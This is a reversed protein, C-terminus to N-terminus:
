YCRLGDTVYEANNRIGKVRTIGRAVNAYHAVGKKTNWADIVHNRNFYFLYGNREDPLKQAQAWTMRRGKYETIRTGRAIDIKTFLGKGAGPVRSRKIVLKSQLMEM